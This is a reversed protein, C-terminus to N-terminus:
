SLLRDIGRTVGSQTGGALAAKGAALFDDRWCYPTVEAVGYRRAIVAGLEERRLFSLVAERHEAVSVESRERM